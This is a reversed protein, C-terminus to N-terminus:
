KHLSASVIFCCIAVFTPLSFIFINKKIEVSIDKGGAFNNIDARLGPFLINEFIFEKEKHCTNKHHIQSSDGKNIRKEKKKPKLYLFFITIPAVIQM